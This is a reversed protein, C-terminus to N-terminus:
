VERKASGRPPRIQLPHKTRTGPPRISSAEGAANPARSRPRRPKAGRGPLSRAGCTLLQLHRARRPTGLATERPRCDFGPCRTTDRHAQRLTRLVLCRLFDSDQGPARVEYLVAALPDTIDLLLRCRCRPFCPKTSLPHSLLLESICGACFEPFFSFAPEQNPGM